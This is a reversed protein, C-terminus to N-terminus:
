HNHCPHRRYISAALLHGPFGMPVGYLILGKMCAVSLLSMGNWLDM